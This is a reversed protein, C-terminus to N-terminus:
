FKRITILADIPIYAYMNSERFGRDCRGGEAVHIGDNLSNKSIEYYCLEDSFIFVAYSKTIKGEKISNIQKNFKNFPYMTTSYANKLNTRSKLEIQTVEKTKKNKIIWDIVQYRKHRILTNDDDDAINFYELIEKIYQTEFWEGIRYDIEKRAKFDELRDKYTSM